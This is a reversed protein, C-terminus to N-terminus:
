RYVVNDQGARAFTYENSWVIVGSELDMMEFIIQTFRQITGDKASDSNLTAIRGGLSFDGGAQAATLGTTGMDVVGKRKLDREHAVRAAYHRGVFVMKGKGSRNLAVRLRDTILNKNLAQSSENVFDESDIIIRPPTRRQVLEPVTLMDRMMKDAMNVIDHGEVGVGAVIGRSSPDLDVTQRGSSNDVHACATLILLLVTLLHKTM